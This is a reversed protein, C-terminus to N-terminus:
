RGWVTWYYYCNNALGSDNIYELKLLSKSEFLSLKGEVSPIDEKKAFELSLGSTKLPLARIPSLRKEIVNADQMVFLNIKDANSYDRVIDFTRPYFLFPVEITDSTTGSGVGVAFVGTPSAVYPALLERQKFLATQLGLLERNTESM